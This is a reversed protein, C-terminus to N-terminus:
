DAVVAAPDRDIRMRAERLFGCELHDQRGQMGAALEPAVCGPGRPTQVADPAADDIGKGVPELDLHRAIPPHPALAVAASHRLGPEDIATRHIVAAARGQPEMGIGLDEAVDSKPRRRKVAHRAGLSIQKPSQLNPPAAIGCQGPRLSNRGLRPQVKRAPEAVEERRAEIPPRNQRRPRKEAADIKGFAAADLPRYRPGFVLFVAEAMGIAVGYRGRFSPGVFSTQAARQQAPDLPIALQDVIAPYGLGSSFVNRCVRRYQQRQEDAVGLELTLGLLPESRALRRPEALVRDLIMEIMPQAGIRCGRPHEEVSNHFPRFLALASALLALQRALTRGALEAQRSLEGIAC